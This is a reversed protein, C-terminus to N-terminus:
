MVSCANPNEDSFIEFSDSPQPPHSDFDSPPPENGPHPVYAYSYPSAYYSANYSASPHATNYSVAYVPPPAYLHSSNPFQYGHHRPPSHNASSPFHVHHSPLGTGAPAHDGSHEGEEGNNGNNGKQGKKKKKKGGNGGANKEAGGDSEGDGKKDCNPSQNGVQFTVTQKVDAPKLEKVQGGAVKVVGNEGAKIPFNGGDPVNRNPCGSDINKGSPDQVTVEVKVTEKEKDNNNNGNNGDGNSEPDNPKQDKDKNKAKGQKKEKHDAKEPWLEAHKGAKVLKKILTEAEVNGTVTVKQQRLDITTQYVGDINTLIRKVKRKCGECHISVKLVWIKYKLPPVPSEEVEKGEAKTEPKPDTKTEPKAETAAM